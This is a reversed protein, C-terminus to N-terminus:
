KCTKEAGSVLGALASAVAGGVNAELARKELGTLPLIRAMTTEICTLQAKSRGAVPVADMLRHAVFASLQEPCAAAFEIGDHRAAPDHSISAYLFRRLTAISMTPIKKVMCTREAPFSFLGSSQPQEVAEILSSRVFDDEYRDARWQGAQEAYALHGRAARGHDTTTVAVQASTGRVVVADVSSTVTSNTDISAALCRAPTKYIERVLRPTLLTTCTLKPSTTELLSLASRRIAVDSSHSAPASTPASGSPVAPSTPASGRTQGTGNIVPSGSGSCGASLLTLAGIVLLASIRGGTVMALDYPGTV